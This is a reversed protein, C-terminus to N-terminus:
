AAERIETSTTATDTAAIAAKRPKTTKTTAVVPEFPVEGYLAGCTTKLARAFLPIDSAMLRSQALELRWVQRRAIGLIRAVQPRTMGLERRRQIMRLGILRLLEMEALPLTRM